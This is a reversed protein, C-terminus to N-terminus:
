SPEPKHRHKELWEKFLQDKLTDRWYIIQLGPNLIRYEQCELHYRKEVYGRVLLTDFVDPEDESPELWGAHPSGQYADKEHYYLREADELAQWEDETLKLAESELNDM